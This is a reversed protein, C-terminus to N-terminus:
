YYTIFVRGRVTQPRPPTTGWRHGSSGWHAAQVEVIDALRPVLVMDRRVDTEHDVDVGVDVVRETTELANYYRNVPMSLSGTGRVVRRWRMRHLVLFGPMAAEVVLAIDGEEGGEGRVFAGAARSALRRLLSSRFSAHGTTSAFYAAINGHPACRAHIAPQIICLANHCPSRRFLLSRWFIDRRQTKM